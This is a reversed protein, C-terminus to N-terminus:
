FINFTIGANFGQSKTYGRIINIRDFTDGYRNSYRIFFQAELKKFKEKGFVLKYAWQLDFEVNRNKNLYAADGAVTTSVNASLISNRLFPTQWTVQTGVRFTRDLRPQEFARQLERTVEFSLGLSQFANTGVSFGSVSSEFDALERGTQMNDQFVHSYRYGFNLKESIQWQAAIASSTSMQDPIQSPNTFLGGTPFASGYQHTRDHSYSFRPLWIRPKAPTFFTSLAVGFVFNNRRTVSRLISAIEALNDDGGLTSYAFNLDGLIASVEFQNQRRDAQSSAATSRFLPDIEEHRFIGSVKLTRDNWVKLGDLFDFTVEAYRANRTNTVAPTLTNGQEVEPDSPNHFRSSSFGAEYRLRHKLASGIVRFGLGINSEADNVAQQNFDTLPLLSGRMGTVELRLLGPEKEFFERAFTLGVVSHERRSLGLFNDYGVISTGNAAIFSLENKKGVPVTLTLGRSSFSNILHRNSGFSVHGLKLSFRDKSLEILYSSLDIKPAEDQLEGFRLANKQFGVGVFDFKNNLTWGRKSVKLQLSAQGDVDGYPDREPATEVPVTLTQNQGKMNIAVTPTFEYKIRDANELPSASPPDINSTQGADVDAAGELRIQFDAVATWSNGPSVLYVTVKNEGAPLLPSNPKYTLSRGSVSFLNTVDTEAIIVALTGEDPSLPRDLTFEITDALSLSRGLFNPTVTLKENRSRASAVFLQLSCISVAIAIAAILLIRGRVQANVTTYKKQM